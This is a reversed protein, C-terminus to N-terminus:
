PLPITNNREEDRLLHSQVWERLIERAGSARSRIVRHQALIKERLEVERGLAQRTLEVLQEDLKYSGPIWPTESVAHLHLDMLGFDRAVWDIDDAGSITITPLGFAMGLAASGYRGATHMRSASLIWSMEELGFDERHLFRCRDRRRMTDMMEHCVLHDVEEAPWLALDADYAEVLWDSYAAFQRIYRSRSEALKESLGMFPYLSETDGNLLSAWNRKEFLASPSLIFLPRKLPDFGLRQKINVGIDSAPAQYRYAPDTASFIENRAGYDKIKVACEPHMVILLDLKSMIQTLLKRSFVGTADIDCGYAIFKRGRAKATHVLLSLLGLDTPSGQYMGMSGHTLVILDSDEIMARAAIWQRYPVRIVDVNEDNPVPHTEKESLLVTFREIQEGLVEKIDRIAIIRSAQTHVHAPASGDFMLIKLKKSGSAM